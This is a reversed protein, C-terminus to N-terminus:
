ITNQCGRSVITYMAENSLPNYGWMNNRVFNNRKLMSNKIYVVFFRIFFM